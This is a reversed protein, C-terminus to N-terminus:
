FVSKLLLREVRPARVNVFDNDLRYVNERTCACWRREHRLDKALALRNTAVYSGGLTATGSNYLLPYYSIPSSYHTQPLPLAEQM